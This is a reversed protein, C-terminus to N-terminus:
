AGGPLWSRWSPLLLQLGGLGGPSRCSGKCLEGWSLTRPRLGHPQWGWGPLRMAMLQPPLFTVTPFGIGQAQGQASSSPATCHSHLDTPPFLADAVAAARSQGPSWHSRPALGTRATGGGGWDRELRARGQLQPPGGARQQEGQGLGEEQGGELSGEQIPGGLPGGRDMEGWLPGWGRTCRTWM